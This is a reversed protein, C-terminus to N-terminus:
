GVGALVKEAVHEPVQAYHSPEMTWSGRGASLSRLQTAYGFMNALPVEATIIRFTGRVDSGTIVARRSSLDGAVVGFYEEPAAVEAKMLPEMLVPRASRVADMFAMRGATEFALESSDVEHHKGDLLVCRINTLPNGSLVGSQAAERFGAEVAPIYETPIAGGKIRSEFELPEEGDRPTFPEVELKVQAYQGRGGTQKRFTIEGVARQTITERYAVRPPGVNVGVKMDKQIRNLIIELHLEGMGRIIAQGTEPDTASQFTPDQRMMQALAEALKDRDSSTRPEIAMSIVCEPFGITEFVVPQRAECLTHGTLSERPGALAVIDGAVVEELEDKRKAFMRYIRSINEKCDLNSNYVRTGAKLTGSYIRVFHLDVPKAAVIKFVLASFPEDSSPHRVVERDPKEPDHGVVPPVDMPSPLYDCVADLMKQVGIYRLSSGCLVPQIEGAITAVRLAAKLEEPSIAEDEVFKHMLDDSTAAVDEIMRARWRRAQALMHEPIDVESVKSGMRDAAFYYAKMTILDILGEFQDSAGIPIQVAVPHANLRNRISDFSMEFEAGVKDM